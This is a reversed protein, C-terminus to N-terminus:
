LVTTFLKRKAEQQMEGDNDQQGGHDEVPVLPMDNSTETATMITTENTSTITTTDHLNTLATSCCKSDLM